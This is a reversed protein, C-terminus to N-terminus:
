RNPDYYIKKKRTALESLQFGTRVEFRKPHVPNEDESNLNYLATVTMYIKPHILLKKGLGIFYNDKWENEIKDSSSSKMISSKEWEGYAFFGKIVDYNIFAKFSSNKPSIYYNNKISDSFTLRYNMGVGIYFLTTFKYGIMPSIDISFPSTSIINFNGGFVFHEFITKGQMSTRKVATSLDNSDSFERYKNMLKSVKAQASILKASHKALFESAEEAAKEKGESKWYEKDAYQEAQTKYQEQLNKIEQISKMSSGMMGNIGSIKSLHEQAQTEAFAFLQKPDSNFLGSYSDLGPVEQILKNWSVSDGSIQYKEMANQFNPNQRARQIVLERIKNESLQKMSDTAASDKLIVNWRCIQDAIPDIQSMQNQPIPLGKKALRKELRFQKRSVVMASDFSKKFNKNQQKRFQTSDKKYFKYYKLLRKHGSQISNLKQNHKPSLNISFNQAHTNLHFSFVIVCVLFILRIM